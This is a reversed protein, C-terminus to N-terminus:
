DSTALYIYAPIFSRTKRLNINININILDNIALHSPSSSSCQCLTYHNDCQLVLWHCTMRNGGECWSSPSGGDCLMAALIDVRTRMALIEKRAGTLRGLNPKGEFDVIVRGFNEGPESSSAKSSAKDPISEVEPPRHAIDDVPSPRSLVKLNLVKALVHTRGELINGLQRFSPLFSPYTKCTLNRRQRRQSLVKHCSHSELTLELLVMWLPRIYSSVREQYNDAGLRNPEVM